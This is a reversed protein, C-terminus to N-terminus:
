GPVRGIRHRRPAATTRIELKDGHAISDVPEGADLEARWKTADRLNVVRFTTPAAAARADVPDPTVLLTQQQPDWRAESLAVRPFDVGVVTPEAFRDGPGVTALRTWAQETAIQAAAMTGNYQGRPIPEGLAFGWTFEGTTRDWTPEYHEDVTHALVDALEHLGWERAMWLAMASPRPGIPAVPGAPEWIGMQRIGAEFLRRAEDPVQPALYPAPV